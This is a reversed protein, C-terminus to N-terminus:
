NAPPQVPDLMVGRMQRAREEYRGEVLGRDTRDVAEAVEHARRDRAAFAARQGHEIADIERMRETLQVKCDGLKQPEWPVAVFELHHAQRRVAIRSLDVQETLQNM